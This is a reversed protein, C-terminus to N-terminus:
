REDDCGEGPYFIVAATDRSLQVIHGGVGAAASLFCGGDPSRDPCDQQCPLKDLPCIIEKLIYDGKLFPRQEM